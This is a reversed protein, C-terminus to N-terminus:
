IECNLGEGLHAFFQLLQLPLRTPQAALINRAVRGYLIAM